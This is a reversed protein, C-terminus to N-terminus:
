EPDVYEVRLEIAGDDRVRRNVVKAGAPLGAEYNEAIKAPPRGWDRLSVYMGQKVQADAGLMQTWVDDATGVTTPPLSGFAPLTISAYREQKKKQGPWSVVARQGGLLDSLVERKRDLTPEGRVLENLVSAVRAEVSQENARRQEHADRDRQVHEIEAQALALRENLQDNKAKWIAKDLGGLYLDALRGIEGQIALLKGKSAQIAPGYPDLQGMVTREHQQIQVLRCGVMLWLVAEFRKQHMRGCGSTCTTYHKDHSNRQHVHGGCTCDVFGTSLFTTRRKLTREKKRREIAAYEDLTILPEYKLTHPEGDFVLTQEGLYARVNRTIHQVSVPSWRCASWDDAKNKRNITSAMPTPIAAKTAMRAAYTVGGEEFWGLILKLNPADVPHVTLTYGQKRDVGNAPVQLYGYPPKGGRAYKGASLLRTKGSMTRGRILKFEENALMAKIQFQISSAEMEGEEDIVKTGASVLTAQISAAALHSERVKDRSKSVRDVRSIRSLSYVVIADPKIVGGNIDRLLQGMQRGDLLTGTVGDDILWGDKNAGYPLVQLDHREVLRRCREIQAQITESDKQGATSTRCYVIATKAM